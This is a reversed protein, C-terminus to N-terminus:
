IFTQMNTQTFTQSLSHTYKHTHTHKPLRQNRSLTTGYRRHCQRQHPLLISIFHKRWFFSRVYVCDSDSDLNLDLDFECLSCRVGYKGGCLPLLQQSNRVFENLRNAKCSINAAQQISEYKITAIEHNPELECQFFSYMASIRHTNDM